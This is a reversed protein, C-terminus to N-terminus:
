TKNSRRTATASRPATYSTFIEPRTGTCGPSSPPLGEPGFGSVSLSSPSSRGSSSATQGRTRRGTGRHLASPKQTVAVRREPDQTSEEDRSRKTDPTQTRGVVRLGASLLRRQAPHKRVRKVVEEKDEPDFSKSAFRRSDPSSDNTNMM